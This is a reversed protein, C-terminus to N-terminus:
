PGRGRRPLGLRTSRLLQTSLQTPPESLRPFDLVSLFLGVPAQHQSIGQTQLTLYAKPLDLLISRTVPISGTIGAQFAPANGSHLVRLFTVIRFPATTM